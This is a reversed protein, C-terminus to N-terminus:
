PNAGAFRHPVSLKHILVPLSHLSPYVGDVRKWVAGNEPLWKWQRSVGYSRTGLMSDYLFSNVLMCQLLKRETQTPWEGPSKEQRWTVVENQFGMEEMNHIKRGGRWPLTKYNMNEGGELMEGECRCWRQQARSEDFLKRFNRKWSNAKWKLFRLSSPLVFQGRPAQQINKSRIMFNTSFKVM